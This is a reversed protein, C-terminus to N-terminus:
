GNPALRRVINLVDMPTFAMFDPETESPTDDARFWLAQVTTMGVNSAGQVDTELRDGVYIAATADVGLADLAALFIGAEPKRSGAEDSYVLVDLHQALGYAEADARLVRAPEPWANAVVGTRVGRGHLSDLLAQASGLVAHAPEWVAHEADIFRDADEIGLERLLEAYPVGVRPLVVSRYHETFEAPDAHSGVAALGARHGEAFLEDDWTWEVLTNTWDFLVAEIV